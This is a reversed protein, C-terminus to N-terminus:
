KSSEATPPSFHISANKFHLYNNIMELILILHWWDLRILHWSLCYKVWLAVSGETACRVSRRLDTSTATLQLLWVPHLCEPFTDMVKSYPITSKTDLDFVPFYRQQCMHWCDPIQGMVIKECIVKQWVWKRLLVSNLWPSQQKAMHASVSDVTLVGQRGFTTLNSFSSSWWM